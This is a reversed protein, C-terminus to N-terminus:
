QTKQSCLSLMSLLQGQGDPSTHTDERVDMCGCFDRASAKESVGEEIGQSALCLDEIEEKVEEKKEPM